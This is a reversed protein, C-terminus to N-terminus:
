EPLSAADVVPFTASFQDLSGFLASPLTPDGAVRLRGLQVAQM